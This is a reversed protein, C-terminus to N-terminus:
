YDPLVGVLEESDTPLFVLWYLSDELLIAFSDLLEQLDPSLTPWSRLLDLDPSQNNVHFIRPRSAPHLPATLRTLLWQFDIPLRLEITVFYFPLNCFDFEFPSLIAPLLALQELLKDLLELADSVSAQFRDTLPLITQPLEGPM